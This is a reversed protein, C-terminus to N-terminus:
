ASQGDSLQSAVYNSLTGIGEIELDIKDGGALFRPPTRVFGVGGPTGTAIVDGVDLTVSRSIFSILFATSFIMQSTNSDQLVDGNVTLRIGLTGPDAIEDATVLWPGFPAHTDGMKGRLWQRDALQIDRSTVDNFCTYGAVHALAEAEPINRGSRGIVVALEAEYDLQGTIAPYEIAAGHGALSRDYKAFLLPNRPLKAAPIGQEAAHDLYNLGVCIIKRPRLLPPELEVFDLSHTLPEGFRGTLNPDAALQPEAWALTERVADRSRSGGAILELLDAPVLACLLAESECDDRIAARYALHAASLDLVRAGIVAGVRPRSHHSFTCLKM